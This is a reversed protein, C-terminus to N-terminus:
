INKRTALCDAVHIYLVSIYKQQALELDRWKKEGEYPGMHWRIMLLEEVSLSIFPVLYMVSKEGHGFPFGDDIGEYAEVEEWKGTEKNKVNKTVINYNGIKCVDHLLCAIKVTDDDRNTLSVFEKYVQLSHECLGGKWNGHFRSSAPDEFFSTSELWSILEEIGPRDVSRLIKLFEEKNNM